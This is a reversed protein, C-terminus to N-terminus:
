NENGARWKKNIRTLQGLAIEFVFGVIVALLTLAALRPIEMFSRAYSMSGGLSQATNAIVEASVMIKLGLSMNAGAQYYVSESVQPLYIKGLRERQSINFVEAMEILGKDVGEIAASLQSYMMPFLVLFTIIVPAVKPTTWILLILVVALTPLTRLFILVPSIIGKFIKSVASLAACVAAFIFSIIFAIVTRLITNGFAMWFTSSALCEGLSVMTDGFSPVVYDNQVCYYAIVWVLWM